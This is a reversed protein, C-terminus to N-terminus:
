PAEKLYPGWCRDPRPEVCVVYKAFDASFRVFVTWDRGSFDESSGSCDPGGSDKLNHGTLTYFGNVDPVASLEYREEVYEEGSTGSLFGNARYTHRETCGNPLRFSWTGVIPSFKLEVESSPSAAQASLAPFVIALLLLFKKM